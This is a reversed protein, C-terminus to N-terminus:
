NIFVSQTHEPVTRQLRLDGVPWMKCVNTLINRALMTAGPTAEEQGYAIPEAWQWAREWSGFAQLIEEKPMLWQADKYPKYVVRSHM